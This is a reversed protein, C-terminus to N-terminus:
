RKVSDPKVQNKELKNHDYDTTGYVIFGIFLFGIFSVFYVIFEQQIAQSRLGVNENKTKIFKKAHQNKKFIEGYHEKSRFVSVYISLITYIRCM